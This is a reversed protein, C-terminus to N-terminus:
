ESFSFVVDRVMGLDGTEGDRDRYISWTSFCVNYLASIVGKAVGM